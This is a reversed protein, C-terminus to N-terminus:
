LGQSYQANTSITILQSLQQQAQPKSDDGKIFNEFHEILQAKDIEEKSGSGINTLDIFFEDFQGKLDNV